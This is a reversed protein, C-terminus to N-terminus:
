AALEILGNAIVEAAGPHHFAQINKMLANRLDDNEFITNIKEMLMHEGLNNEELVVAAGIKALAYANMRQHDNASGELPVLISPKENAAIEAISTAGARSIVLDALAYSDRLRNSDLFAAAYYGEHGAKIGQSAAFQTVYEYNAQGTQHIVQFRSLLQPLIRVIADNLNKSGQSGGLILITKRSETFHLTKRLIYADGGTIEKRVPNGVLATRERPFYEEASPYSVAIRSAYKGLFQNSLGPVADSEHILVPIRYIRAALVAPVAVYGGKSFVVDPMFQWLYWLSQVFGIPLKWLQTINEISFYRRLKATKIFKTPINEQTM